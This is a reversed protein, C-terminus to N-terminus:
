SRQRHQLSSRRIPQYALGVVPRQRKHQAVRHFGSSASLISRRHSTHSPISLTLINHEKCYLEFQTSHHSEHGNLILLRYVGLTRSETHQDFHKVWDLGIDNMTWGNETTAIHWDAPLDCESYWNALHYQAALITSPPIAWRLVNVGQIITVWERSGPQALSPRQARDSTTVVMGAYSMGM